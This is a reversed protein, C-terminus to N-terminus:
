IWIAHVWICPRSPLDSLSYVEHTLSELERYGNQWYKRCSAALAKEVNKPSGRTRQMAGLLCMACLNSQNPDPKMTVDTQCAAQVPEAQAAETQVAAQVPEARVAETQVAADVPEARVAETQVTAQVPEARFAETQVAAQVPEARVPAEAQVPPNKEKKLKRRTKRNTKKLKKNKERRRADYIRQLIERRIKGKAPLDVGLKELEIKIREM